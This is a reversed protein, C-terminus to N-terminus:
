RGYLRPPTLIMEGYAVELVPRGYPGTTSRLMLKLKFYMDYGYINSLDSPWRTANDDFDSLRTNQSCTFDKMLAGWLSDFLIMM